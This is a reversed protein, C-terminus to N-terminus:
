AVSTSPASAEDLPLEIHLALGQVANRTAWIRGGHQEVISRCITLGMGLGGPKGTVFHTFIHELEGASVGVGTDHVIVEMVDATPRRTTITIERPGGEAAAEIAEGANILVNLLVQQLQVADGPLRPVTRDLSLTVTIRKHQFDHHLLPVVNEILTNMSVPERDVHENRFMARLRTIVQSARTGDQVIDALVDKLSDPGGPSSGLLRVAAQANLRIATLPQNIEHALGAALEGLTTVRQVHALEERHRRTEEIARGARQRAMAGAFVDALLRLRSGLDGDWRREERVTTLALFGAVSGGTVLPVIALSRTGFATLTRHDRTAQVPLDDPCSIRVDQGRRIEGDIWPMRGSDLAGPLSPAGARTWAHTVRIVNPQSTYEAVTVRDVGLDDGIRELATQIEADVLTVPSSAFLASLDALLTEFRLRSALEGEARRRKARQVLLTAILSSQVLVLVAGGVIYQRYMTWASPEDFLLVRDRPLRRPDLGWRRVQRADFNKVNTAAARPAPRDGRLVETALRAAQTGHAEFSVVHGGVVGSGITGSVVSYVPVPAAAAIRASAEGGYFEQGTADRTFAGLLVVTGTPLVAIHDLVAQLTVGHLYEIEIPGRAPELQDRAATMWVRDIPSSGGIVVVRTTDPQLELATEYTGTWDISLWIGTVDAPLPIDRVATQEVSGFVIPVGPFLRSRHQLAFRLTASNTIVILDLGRAYKARLYGITEEPFVGDRAVQTLNLYESYINVPEIASSRLTAGFAHEHALIAPSPRPLDYLLLIRRPAVSTAAQPSPGATASTAIPWPALAVAVLQALGAM